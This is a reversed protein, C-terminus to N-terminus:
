GGTDEGGDLILPPLFDCDNAGLCPDDILEQGSTAFYWAVQNALHIVTDFERDPDPPEVGHLGTTKPYPMRLGTTGRSTQLTARLPADSPAGTGDLGEDLDDPDFLCPNGDDCTYPGFAELGHLVKRDILWQDVTMGYREDVEHREVLGAARAIGLGASVTVGQDGVNPMVLVNAPQGGLLDFPQEFWHPAYSIPDGPELAMSTAMALRRLEPTGRIHGSGHSAAVLPSGAPMTVGEYLTDQQWSDIREVLNGDADYLTIVLPDGLGENDPVTYVEGLRPGEEPMGAWAKKELGSLADAPIALRFRGDDPIYGERVEGNALNEVVIKGGAPFSSLTAISVQEMELYANVYQVVQLSGDDGPLGLILPTIMRGIVAAVVGGLDSRIGVDLLGGGPVLPGFAEVEPMVGAAVSTNIGGLSGGLISYDVDPGGIDPTGDSDWDCSTVTDVVQGTDDLIDMTGTGCGKLARVLAMKEVVGQRVMDRSHFPDSIWQDGGSNTNGDNTLDRARHDKMHNYFSLLGYTTLLGEALPELDSDLEFGHGPYDAACTAIGVRNLAWGFLMMDLRSTSHGHGFLAVPAPQGAGISPDPLLCTFVLRNPEHTMTGAVPDLEWWDDTTDGTGERDILLNPVTITGGVLAGGFQSYAANLLEGEPGEFLPSLAELVVSTPLYQPPYDPLDHVQPATQVRAPYDALFPWPGEGDFGRRIDVLDGTVRGTTFVWAYAVDDVSLGWQPLADLVPLLAETQRTHNVYAWPSRVPNGDVGVLRETLVMAYRGQERLPVVPRVILTESELEYFTLLDDRVDGGAPHVNPVDLVGDNDTDEGWDLVGNGNLDEDGSEFMITPMDWRPDNAFYRNTGEIDVPYRGHGVDLEVPQLYTPSQPDVDILYFADDDFAEARHFDNAHRAIINDLDLRSEFAVTIPAYIGFGSLEDLKARAQAESVTVAEKSINVRLGTPSSPDVRTALDNPFPIEPLPEADWDIKVLPGAGSPTARLGDLPPACASLALLAILSSTRM